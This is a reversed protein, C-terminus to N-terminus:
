DLLLQEVGSVM